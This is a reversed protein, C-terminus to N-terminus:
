KKSSCAVVKYPIVSRKFRWITSIFELYFPKFYLTKCQPDSLNDNHLLVIQLKKRCDPEDRNNEELDPRPRSATCPTYGAASRQQDPGAASCHCTEGGSPSVAGLQLFLVVPLLYM